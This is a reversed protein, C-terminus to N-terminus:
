SSPISVDGFPMSVIDNDKIYIEEWGITWSVGERSAVLKEEDAIVKNIYFPDNRANYCDKIDKVTIEVVGDWPQPEIHGLEPWVQKTPELLSKPTHYQSESLM